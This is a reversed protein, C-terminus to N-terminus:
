QSRRSTRTRLRECPSCRWTSITSPNAPPVTSPQALASMMPLYTGGGIPHSWIVVTDSPTEPKLLQASLAVVDIEGAYTDKFASKDEFVIISPIREYAIKTM